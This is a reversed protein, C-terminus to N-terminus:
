TSVVLSLYLLCRSLMETAKLWLPQDFTLIPTNIGLVKAQDIIFTPDSLKLDLIPLFSVVAKGHYHQGSSNGSM